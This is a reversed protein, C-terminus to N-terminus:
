AVGEPPRAVTPDARLPRYLRALIVLWALWIVAHAALSIFFNATVIYLIASAAALGVVLVRDEWLGARTMDRWWAPDLLWEIGVLALGALAAAERGSLGLADAAAARYFTWHAQLYLTELMIFAFGWPRALQARRRVAPRVGAPYHRRVLLAHLAILLAGALLWAGLPPLAAVSQVADPQALSLQTPTVVGGILALYPVGVYYLARVIWAMGSLRHRWADPARSSRLVTLSAALTHAALSAAAWAPLSPTM